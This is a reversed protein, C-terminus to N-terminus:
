ETAHAQILELLIKLIKSGQEATDQNNGQHLQLQGFTYIAQRLQVMGLNYWTDASEPELKIAERYAVIAADPRNTFAYINGLRYWHVAQQPGSRVLLSYYKESALWDSSAYASEALLATQGLTPGPEEKVAIGSACGFLMVLVLMMGIHRM